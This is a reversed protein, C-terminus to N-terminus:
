DFGLERAVDALRKDRTVLRAGSLKASVLLHTDVWGIGRGHIKASNIYFMVEKDSAKLAQPMESLATEIVTHNSLSGLLIEGMIFPHMVIDGATLQNSFVPDSKRLHDIWISTDALIM